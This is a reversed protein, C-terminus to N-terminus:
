PSNVGTPRPRRRRALPPTAQQFAIVAFLLAGTAIKAWWSALSGDVAIYTQILGRSSV